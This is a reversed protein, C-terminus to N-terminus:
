ISAPNNGSLEKIILLITRGDKQVPEKVRYVRSLILHKGLKGSQFFHFM